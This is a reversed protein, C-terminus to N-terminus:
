IKKPARVDSRARFFEYVLLAVIGLVAVSLQHEFPLSSFYSYLFAGPAVGILTILLFRRRSIDTFLAFGYSVIDGHVIIRVFIGHWLSRDETLSRIMERQTDPILRQVAPKGLRRAIEFLIASGAMWCVLTMMATFLWGWLAVAIPMLPLISGFPIIVSAICLLVYLAIAYGRSADSLLHEFTDAHARVFLSVVVFLGFTLLLPWIRQLLKLM